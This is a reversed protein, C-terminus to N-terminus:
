EEKGIFELIEIMRKNEEIKDEDSFSDMEIELLRYVINSIIGEGRFSPNKKYLNKYYNLDRYIFNDNSLHFDFYIKGHKKFNKM